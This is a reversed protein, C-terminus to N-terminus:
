QRFKPDATSTENDARTQLDQITNLFLENALKKQQVQLREKTDRAIAGLSVDVALTFVAWLEWSQWGTLYYAAYGIALYSSARIGALFLMKVVFMSFNLYYKVKSGNYLKDTIAKEVNNM